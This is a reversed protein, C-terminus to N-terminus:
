RPKPLCWKWLWDSVLWLLTGPLNRGIPRVRTNQFAVLQWINDRRVAVLTQISEREPAPASRGRLVTGGSAHIVAVDPRVLRVDTVEGVLRTDKLHTNFLPDHFRVLEDRGHFRTGDFAVFDCEEAFPAAFSEASGVNWGEMMRIYLARIEPVDNDSARLHESTRIDVSTSTNMGLPHCRAGTTTKRNIAADQQIKRRLRAAINIDRRLIAMM